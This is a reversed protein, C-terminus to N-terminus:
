GEHDKGTKNEKIEMTDEVIVDAVAIDTSGNDAFTLNLFFTATFVLVVCGTGLFAKLAEVVEVQLATM